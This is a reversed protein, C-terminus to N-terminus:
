APVPQGPFIASYFHKGCSRIDPDMNDPDTAYRMAEQSADDMSKMEKILDKEKKRNVSRTSRRTPKKFRDGPVPTNGNYRGMYIRNDDVNGAFWDRATGSDLAKRLRTLQDEVLANMPYLILARVAAQRTEHGRQPIWCPEKNKKSEEQWTENKWWDDLRPHKEGPLTWGSIECAMQAFLPLLFSETKGSGTGATVVCNSGSVAKNLMKFQHAYLEFEGFLGCRVLQKFTVIQSDNLAPLDERNLGAIKKGSSEYVPLPEIWPEQNLVGPKKLLSEREHEISPFRTGFATKVYLIFKERIKEFAGIPDHM